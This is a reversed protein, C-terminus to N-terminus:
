YDDYLLEVTVGLSDADSSPTAFLMLVLLAVLTAYPHEVRASSCPRPCLSPHDLSSPAALAPPCCFAPVSFGLSDWSHLM